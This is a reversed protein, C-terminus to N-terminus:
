AGAKLINSISFEVTGTCLRTVIIGEHNITPHRKLEM